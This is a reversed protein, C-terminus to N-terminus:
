SPNKYETNPEAVGVGRPEIYRLEGAEVVVLRTGTRIALERADRGARLLADFAGRLDPDNPLEPHETM